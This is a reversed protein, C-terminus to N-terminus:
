IEDDWIPRQGVHLSGWRQNVDRRGAVADWSAMWQAHADGRGM